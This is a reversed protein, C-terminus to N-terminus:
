ALPPLYGQAHGDPGHLDHPVLPADRVHEGLRPGVREETLTERRRSIPEPLHLPITSPALTPQRLQDPPRTQRGIDEHTADTQGPVGAVVETTKPSIGLLHQRGVGM